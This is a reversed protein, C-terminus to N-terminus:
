CNRRQMCRTGFTFKSLDFRYELTEPAVEPVETFVDTSRRSQIERPKTLAESQNKTGDM